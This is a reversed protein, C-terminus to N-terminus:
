SKATAASPIIEAADCASAATAKMTLGDGSGHHESSAQLNYVQASGVNCNTTTFAAVVTPQNSAQSSHYDSTAEQSDCIDLM